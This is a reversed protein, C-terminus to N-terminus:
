TAREELSDREAITAAAGDGGGLLAGLAAALEEVMRSPDHRARGDPLELVVGGPPLAPDAVFELRLDRASGPPAAALADRVEPRVRVILGEEPLVRRSWDDLVRRVETEEVRALLSPVVRRLATELIDRVAGRGEALAAALSGLARGLAAHVAEVAAALRREQEAAFAAELERRQRTCVAALARALQDEDFLLRREALSPRHEPGPPPDPADLSPPKWSAAGGQRGHRVLDLGAEFPLASM